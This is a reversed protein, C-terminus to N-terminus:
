LLATERRLDDATDDLWEAGAHMAAIIFHVRSLGLWQAALGSSLKGERYLSFAATEKLYRAFEGPHQKLGLLLEEPCEIEVKANM